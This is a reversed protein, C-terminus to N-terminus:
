KSPEVPVYGDRTKKFARGQEIESAWRLATAADNCEGHMRRGGAPDSRTVAFPHGLFGAWHLVMADDENLRSNPPRRKQQTM